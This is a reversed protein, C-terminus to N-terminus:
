FKFLLVWRVFSPFTRQRMKDLEQRLFDIEEAQARATDVMHRRGVVKKMKGAAINAPNSEVGRAEDRSNKVAQCSSVQGHLSSIKMELTSCEQQREELQKKLIENKQRINELREEADKNLFDKRLAVKDLREKTQAADAGDRIIKQLERTVRFLQLDTLYVEFHKAELGKHKAEWEFINIKRRFQKIKTLISIKDKGLEKIRSNFKGLVETPLLLARSYDTVAADKDVEDQGQRLCVVLDLNSELARLESLLADRSSKMENLCSVLISEETDLRELRGKLDSFELVLKRVEIEKDIRSCRLENLKAWSFQDVVFDDPCDSEMSLTNYIPIQSENFKKQKELQLLAEFFPDRELAKSGEDAGSSKLAEAAQQMPGMASNSQSAGAKNSAKMKNKAKNDGAASEGLGGSSDKKSKASRGYRNSKGGANSKSSKKKDSTSRNVESQDGGYSDDNTADGDIGGRPYTRLKYLQTFIKLSDQDFTNNCLNQLDRKFSKEMQKEEEQLISIRGKMEEFKLSYSDIKSRVESRDKRLSQIQQEAKKLSKWTQETKAMNLALRSVYIEISLIERHVLVKLKSLEELKEDFVKCADSIENKLKKMEQELLKRYNAQEEQLTKLKLQYAEFEKLESESMESVPTTDMWEPKVLSSAEAFVDRKIELTGHMMEELARGKIDEKDNEMAQRIREEEERLRAAKAVESEYPRSVLESGSVKLASGPTEIDSLKLTPISDKQHLDELIARIRVNRSEISGLIEEKEKYLQTFKENFKTRLQRVIEKLLIIQTRKQVQTRVAQPPYLLNLINNDDIGHDDETSNASMEDDDDAVVIAAVAKDKSEKEKEKDAPAVIKENALLKDIQDSLPWRTGDNSIWSVHPPCGRLSTAWASRHIGTAGPVRHVSGFSSVHQMRAEMGRLRKVKNLVDIHDASSKSVSFSNIAFKYTRKNNDNGTTALAFSLLTLSKVEMSDWCKQRVRAALLEHWLNRKEYLSRVEDVRKQREQLLIDRSEEDIVFEERNLVELESREANQQLLIRLRHSIESIAATVGMTKFKFSLQLERLKEAEKVDLWTVNANQQFHSEKSNITATFDDVFFKSLNIGVAPAAKAMAKAVPKDLTLIFTSGDVSTSMLQSSDTSFALGLVGGTHLYVKNALYISGDEPEVRWLYLTGDVSGTAIFRGNPSQGATVLIDEHELKRVSLIDTINTNGLASVAGEKDIIIQALIDCPLSYMINTEGLIMVNTEQKVLMAQCIGTFGLKSEVRGYNEEPSEMSCTFISGSKCWVQLTNNTYILSKPIENNELSIYHPLNKLVVKENTVVNVLYIRSDHNSATAVNHYAKGESHFTIPVIMSLASQYLRHDYVKRSALRVFGSGEDDEVINHDLSEKVDDEESHEVAELSWIELWGDDTGVFVLYFHPKDPLQLFEIACVAPHRSASAAKHAKGKTQGLLITHVTSLARPTSKRIGGGTAMNDVTHVALQRWFTLYGLHSGTVFMSLTTKSRGSSKVGMSMYKCCLIFGNRDEQGVIEPYAETVNVLQGTTPPGTEEGSLFGPGKDDFGIGGEKLDVPTRYISGAATGIVLSAYQEDIAISGVAHSLIVKQLPNSFGVVTSNLSDVSEQLLPFWYVVGEETGIIVTQSSSLVACTPILVKGSGRDNAAPLNFRGLFRATGASNSSTAQINGEGLSIQTQLPYSNVLPETRIEFVAGDGSQDVGVLIRYNDNVIRSEPKSPVPVWLAYQIKNCNGDGSFYLNCKVTYIKLSFHGLIETVVGVIVSSSDDGYLIFYNSDCPNVVCYKCVVSLKSTLLLDVKSGTLKWILIKHDGTNAATIAFLRDGQRSFKLDVIDASTPNMATCLLSQDNLKLIDISGTGGSVRYCLAIIKNEFNIAVKRIGKYDGSISDDADNQGFTSNANTRSKNSWIMERPGKNIDYVCVGRGAIYGFRDSDLFFIEQGNYGLCGVVDVM